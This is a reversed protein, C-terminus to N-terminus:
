LIMHPTGLASTLTSSSAKDLVLSIGFPVTVPVDDQACGQNEEGDDKIQQMVGYEPIGVM